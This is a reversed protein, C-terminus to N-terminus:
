GWCYYFFYTGQDTVTAHVEAPIGGFALGDVISSFTATFIYLRGDIPEAESPGVPMTWTDDREVTAADVIAEEQYGDPLDHLTRFDDASCGLAPYNHAALYEYGADLGKSWSDSLGRYLSKIAKVDAEYEAAAVAEPSLTTTTPQTTTTPAATTTTSTPTTPAAAEAADSNTASEGCAALVLCVAAAVVFMSRKM